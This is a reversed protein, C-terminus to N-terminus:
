IQKPRASLFFSSWIVLNVITKWHTSVKSLHSVLNIYCHTLIFLHHLVIIQQTLENLGETLNVPIMPSGLPQMLAQQEENTKISVSGQLSFCLRIELKGRLIVM